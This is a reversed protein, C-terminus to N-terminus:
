VAPTNDLHSVVLKDTYITVMFQMSTVCIVYVMGLYPVYVLYLM